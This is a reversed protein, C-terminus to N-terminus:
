ATHKKVVIQEPSTVTLGSNYEVQAKSGNFLESDILRYMEMNDLLSFAEFNGVIIDVLSTDVTKLTSTKDYYKATKNDFSNCEIINLGFRKVLEGNVIAKDYNEAFGLNRLLMAYVGTSVLAFNAKGKNDKIKQRLAVLKDVVNEKTIKTTDTDATGENVLCAIGSYQRSDKTQNLSDSLYEEGMKFAVSKAQVGYIKRSKQFNNNFVIPILEDNAAEDNFDRGPKGVEVANGKGLKHVYIAGAPGIEYKDTYTVGPILVTDSYLNPEITSSYKEDVHQNGYLIAM